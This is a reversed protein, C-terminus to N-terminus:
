VPWGLKKSAARVCGRTSLPPQVLHSDPQYGPYTHFSVQLVATCSAEFCCLLNNIREATKFKFIQSTHVLLQLCKITTPDQPSAGQPWYADLFIDPGPSFLTMHCIERNPHQFAPRWFSSAGAVGISTAAISEWLNGWALMLLAVLRSVEGRRCCGLGGMEWCMSLWTDALCCACCSAPCSLSALEPLGYRSAMTCPVPM